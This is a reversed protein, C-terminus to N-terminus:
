SERDFKGEVIKLIETELARAKSDLEAAERLMGQAYAKDDLGAANAKVNLHAGAVATRACLAAVGADSASQPIGSEAMTKILGMSDAAARMAQM